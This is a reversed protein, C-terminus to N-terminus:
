TCYVFTNEADTKLVESSNIVVKRTRIYGEATGCLPTFFHTTEVSATNSFILLILSYDLNLEM